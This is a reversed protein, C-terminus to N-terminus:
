SIFCGPQILVENLPDNQLKKDLENKKACVLFGGIVILSFLIARFRFDM